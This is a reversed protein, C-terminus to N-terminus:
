GNLAQKVVYSSAHDVGAAVGCCEEVFGRNALAYHLDAQLRAAVSFLAAETKSEIDLGRRRDHVITVEGPVRHMVEVDCASMAEHLDGRLRRNLDM